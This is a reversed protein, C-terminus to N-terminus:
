IVFVLIKEDQSTKYNTIGPDQLVLIKQDLFNWNNGMFDCGLM